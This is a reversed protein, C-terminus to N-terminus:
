ALTSFSIFLVMLIISVLCQIKKILKFISGEVKWEMLVILFNLVSLQEHEFELQPLIISTSVVIKVFEYIYPLGLEKQVMLLHRSVDIIAEVHGKAKEHHYACVSFLMSLLEASCRQADEIM